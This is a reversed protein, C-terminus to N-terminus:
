GLAIVGNNTGAYIYGSAGIMQVWYYRKATNPSLITDQLARPGSEYNWAFNNCAYPLLYLTNSDGTSQEPQMVMFRRTGDTFFSSISNIMTPIATDTIYSNAPLEILTLGNSVSSYQHLLSKNYSLPQKVSSTWSTPFVTFPYFTNSPQFLKDTVTTTLQTWGANNQTNQGDINAVSKYIGNSTALLAYSTGLNEASPIIAIDFFLYVGTFDIAGDLTNSTAITHTNAIIDALNVHTPLQFVTDVPIGSTDVSKTLVYVSGAAGSGKIARVEGTVSTVKQWSFTDDFPDLTLTTINAANFGVGTNTNAYVYLGNKTGAFLFGRTTGSAWKSYGLCTVPDTDNPLKTMKFALNANFDATVTQSSTSRTSEDVGSTATSIHAIAVKGRGGFMAYRYQGAGGINKTAQNLDCCSFCGDTFEDNLVNLLADANVTDQDFWETTKVITNSQDISIIHGTLANVFVQQASGDAYSVGMEFPAAKAWDTWTQIKGKDNFIAQSYYIGPSNDAAPGTASKISIFVTDGCVFLSSIGRDAANAIPATTVKAAGGPYAGSGVLASRNTNAFLHGAGTAQVTFDDTTIDAQAFTGLINDAVGDGSVLPVAYVLNNTNDATGNGGQVILYFFGTSTEMVALNKTAIIGNGATGIIRTNADIAAYNGVPPLFSLINTTTDVTAIAVSVMTPNGTGQLGIYLRKLSQNWCMAPAYDAAFTVAGGGAVVVPTTTTLTLARNGTLGTNADFVSLAQTTPNLSMLAIGDDAAGGFNTVTAAGNTIVAAFIYSDSAALNVIGETTAAVANADNLEGSTTVTTGTTNVAFVSTAPTAANTTSTCIIRPMEPTTLPTCLAINNIYTNALPNNGNTSAIGICGGETTNLKALSFTGATQDLGFYLTQTPTHFACSNIAVTFTKTPDITNNGQYVTVASLSTVIVTSMVTIRLFLNM